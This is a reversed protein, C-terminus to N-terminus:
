TGYGFKGLGMDLVLTFKGVNDKFGEFGEKYPVVHFIQQRGSEANIIAQSSPKERKCREMAGNKEWLNFPAISKCREIAENKGRISRRLRSAGNLQGM